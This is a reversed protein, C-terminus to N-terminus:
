SKVSARLDGLNESAKSLRILLHHYDKFDPQKGKHLSRMIDELARVLQSLLSQVSFLKAPEEVQSGKYGLEKGYKALDGVTNLSLTYAAGMIRDVQQGYSELLSKDLNDSFSRVIIQLETLVM